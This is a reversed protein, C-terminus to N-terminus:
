RSSIRSHPHAPCAPFPSPHLRKHRSPLPAYRPIKSQRSPSRHRPRPISALPLPRRGPLSRIPKPPLRLIRPFSKSIKRRRRAPRQPNRTRRVLHRRVTRSPLSSFPALERPLPSRWGTETYVPLSSLLRQWDPLSFQGEVWCGHCLCACQELITRRHIRCM